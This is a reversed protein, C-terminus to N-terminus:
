MSKNITSLRMINVANSSSRIRDYDLITFELVSKQERRRERQNLMKRTNLNTQNQSHNQFKTGYKAHNKKQNKM